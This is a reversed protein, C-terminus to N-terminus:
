SCSTERESASDRELLVVDLEADLELLVEASSGPEVAEPPELVAEVGCNLMWSFSSPSAGYGWAKLRLSARADRRKQKGHYVADGLPAKKTRKGSHLFPTLFNNWGPM